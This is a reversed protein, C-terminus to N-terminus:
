ESRRDKERCIEAIRDLYETYPGSPLRDAPTLQWDDYGHGAMMEGFHPRLIDLDGPTMFTAWNGATESRRVRDHPGMERQATLPVGLFDTLADVRGAILDEYRICAASERRGHREVLRWYRRVRRAAQPVSAPRMGHGGFIKRFEGTLDFLGMGQPDKEKAAIVARWADCKGKDFGNEAVAVYLLYMLRSILEDRPDRVIFVIRDFRLALEGALIAERLNPRADWHEHILKVVLPGDASRHAEAEFYGVRKPEFGLACSRSWGQELSRQVSKALFTTGTKAIGMVLVHRPLGGAPREEPAPPFRSWNPTRSETVADAMARM